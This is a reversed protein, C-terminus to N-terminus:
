ERLYKMIYKKEIYEIEKLKNIYEDGICKFIKSYFESLREIHFWTDKLIRFMKKNSETIFFILFAGVLAISGALVQPVTSYFYYFSKETFTDEM